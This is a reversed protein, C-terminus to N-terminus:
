LTYSRFLCMSVYLVYTVKVISQPTKATQLKVVEGGKVKKTHLALISMLNKVDNQFYKV